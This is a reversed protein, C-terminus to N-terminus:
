RADKTEGTTCPCDVDVIDDPLRGDRVFGYGQCTACPETSALPMPYARGLLQSVAIAHRRMAHARLLGDRQACAQGYDMLAALIATEANLRDSM